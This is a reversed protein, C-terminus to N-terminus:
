RTVTLPEMLASAQTTRITGNQAASTNAAAVSGPNDGLVKVVQGSFLAMAQQPHLQMYVAPNTFLANSLQTQTTGM